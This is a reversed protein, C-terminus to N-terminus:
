GLTAPAVALLRDRHYGGDAPNLCEDGLTGSEVSTVPGIKRGVAVIRAWRPGSAYADEAWSKVTKLHDLFGV